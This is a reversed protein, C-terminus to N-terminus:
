RPDSRSGPGHAGGLRPGADAGGHSSYAAGRGRRPVSPPAVAVALRPHARAAWGSSTSASSGPGRRRSSSSPTSGACRRRRHTPAPLMASGLLQGAPCAVAALLAFSWIDVGRFPAVELVAFLLTVAAIFLGGALPGEVGNTAGSGILYDSADYVMLFVVLICAALIEYHALLVLSAVSGGCVGAALVTHGAAALLPMQRERRQAAVVVAAVVLALMGAGLPRVGQTALVPLTSAGLAAVWRDAGTRVTHWAGVVQLAAAGAVVAYLTALGYPRLPEFGLAAAVVVVWAVGLRLRPGQTNYVVGYRQRFATRPSPPDPLLEQVVAEGKPAPRAAAKPARAAVVPTSGTDRFTVSSTTARPPAPRTRRVPREPRPGPADPIPRRAAPRPAASGPGPRAAKPKPKAAAGAAKSGPRAAGGTRPAPRATSPRKAAGPRPPRPAAGSAPRPPGAAPRPPRRAAPPQPRQPIDPDATM